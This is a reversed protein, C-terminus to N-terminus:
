RFVMRPKAECKGCTCYDVGYYYSPCPKNEKVAVPVVPLVAVPEQKIPLEPVDELVVNFSSLFRWGTEDGICEGNCTKVTYNGADITNIRGVMGYWKGVFTCVVLTGEKFYKNALPVSKDLADFYVEFLAPVGWYMYQKKGSVFVWGGIPNGDIGMVAFSSNMNIAVIDGILGFWIGAQLCRVRKGIVIDQFHLM